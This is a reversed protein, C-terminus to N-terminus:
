HPLFEAARQTGTMGKKPSARKIGTSSKVAKLDEKLIDMQAKIEAIRNQASTNQANKRTRSAARNLNSMNREHQTNHLNSLVGNTEMTQVIRLEDTQIADLISRGTGTRQNTFPHASENLSTHTPTALWDERAMKSMNINISPIFWPTPNKDVIWDRVIKHSSTKCSQVLTDIEERSELYVIRNLHIDCTKVIHQVITLPDNLEAVPAASRHGQRHAAQAQSVLEDGCGAVQNKDGDLIIAKLGSGDLFKFRVPKGTVTAITEWLKKFMLAFAHRTERTTYLRAITLRKSLRKDWIVVEWEKWDNWVRKYTCDHTTYDADHIRAALEPILTVVLQIEATRVVEHIYIGDPLDQCKLDCDQQHIVGAKIDKGFPFQRKIESNLVERCKRTNALAPNNVSPANGGYIQRTSPANNVKSVTAGVLGHARIADLYIERQQKTLKTPPFVPHNHGDDGFLVVIARRDSEDVPCFIKLKVNCTRKIMKGTVSIESNGDHKFHSYPCESKKKGIRPSVVRACKDGGSVEDDCGRVLEVRGGNQFLQKVINEDTNRPIWQHLHDMKNGTNYNSCGIFYTKGDWNKSQSKASLQRTTPTGSCPQLSGTSDPISAPCKKSNVARYFSAANAKVSSTDASNVDQEANFLALTEDLDPKYRKCSELLEPDSESCHYSGGCIHEVVRCLANELAIVKTPKNVSGGSGGQWSDQDEGKIIAAMSMMKGNEKAWSRTDKTLDVLYAFEGRRRPVEWTSPVQTLTILKDVRLQRTIRVVPGSVTQAMSDQRNSLEPQDSPEEKRPRKPLRPRPQSMEDDSSIDIVDSRASLGKARKKSVKAKRADVSGTRKSTNSQSDSDSSIEIFQPELPEKKVLLPAEPSSSRRRKGNENSDNLECSAADIVRRLGAAFRVINVFHPEVTVWTELTEKTYVGLDVLSPLFNQKVYSHIDADSLTKAVKLGMQQERSLSVM